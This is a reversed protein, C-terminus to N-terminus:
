KPTRYCACLKHNFLPGILFGAVASVALWLLLVTAVITITM